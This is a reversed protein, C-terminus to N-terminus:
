EDIARICGSRDCIANQGTAYVSCRTAREDCNETRSSASANRRYIFQFGNWLLRCACSFIQVISGIMTEILEVKATM